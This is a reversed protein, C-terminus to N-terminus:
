ESAHGIGRELIDAGAMNVSQKGRDKEKVLYFIYFSQLLMEKWGYTIM